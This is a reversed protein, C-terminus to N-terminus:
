GAVAHARHTAWGHSQLTDGLSDLLAPVDDITSPVAATGSTVM